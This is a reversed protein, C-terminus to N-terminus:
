SLSTQYVTSGTHFIRGLGGFLHEIERTFSPVTHEDHPHIHDKNLPKSIHSHSPADTKNITAQTHDNSLLSKDPMPPPAKMLPAALSMLGGAIGLLGGVAGGLRNGGFPMMPPVMGMNGSPSHQIPAPMAIDRNTPGSGKGVEGQSTSPRSVSKDIGGGTFEWHWPERPITRFGFRAANEVLWNNQKSGRVNVGSGLDVATGWGHNSKGPEAALGGQSYLGKTRALYEQTKLDRYSDTITWRIGDRAAAASMTKYADAAPAQLRHHGEGLSVLMSEPLNGNGGKPQSIVSEKQTPINQGVISPISPISPLQAQQAQQLQPQAMQSGINNYRQMWDAQYKEPTLGRNQAIAAQSIKGQANGTYWQVPVKTVDGNNQKLIQEIYKRAVADQVEPPASAANQYESGIGFRKSLGQWTQETFQYAGGYPQGGGKIYGYRGGSEKSKITNLIQDVGGTTTPQTGTPIGASAGATNVNSSGDNGNTPIPAPAPIPPPPPPLHPTAQVANIGTYKPVYDKETKSKNYEDLDKQYSGIGYTDEYEKIVLAKDNALGFFGTPLGEIYRILASTKEIQTTAAAMSDKGYLGAATPLLTTERGLLYDVGYKIGVITAALAAVDLILPTISKVNKAINVIEISTELFGESKIGNNRIERGLQAEFKIFKNDFVGLREIIQRQVNISSRILTNTENVKQTNNVIEEGVTILSAEVNDTNNKSQQLYDWLDRTVNAISSNNEAATERFSRIGESAETKIEKIDNKLEDSNDSM